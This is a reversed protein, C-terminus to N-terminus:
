LSPQQFRRRAENLDADFFWIREPWGIMVYFLSEPIYGPSSLWSRVKNDMGRERAIDLLITETDEYINSRSLRGVSRKHMFEDIVSIGSNKDHAWDLFSQNGSVIDNIANSMQVFHWLSALNGEPHRGELAEAIYVFFRVMLISNKRVDVPMLTGLVVHAGERLMLDTINVTGKGRPTVQCASLCVIVPLPGIEECFVMRDGCRIGAINGDTYGHASMVLIDYTGERLATKIDDVTDTEVTRCEVNSVTLLIEIGIRWGIRSLQGIPDDRPICEIILIKLRDKLYHTPFGSIEFQMARTLPLLPRYAIPVRCCLPSKGEPASSLGIPFESFCTLSSAHLIALMQNESFSKSVMEGIRRLLRQVAKPNPRSAQMTTELMNLLVFAEDEINDALFGIGQGGLAHHAVLLEMVSREIEDDYPSLKGVRRLRKHLERTSSRPSIGPVAVSVPCRFEQREEVLRQPMLHEAQELTAGEAELKATASLVAQCHIFYKLIEEQSPFGIPVAIDSGGRLQRVVFHMPLISARLNSEDMLKSPQINQPHSVSLANYLASWHRHLSESGISSAMTIEIVNQIQSSLTTAADVLNDPTFIIKPWDHNLMLQVSELYPVPIIVIHHHHSVKQFGKLVKAPVVQFDYRSRPLHLCYWILPIATKLRTDFLLPLTTQGKLYRLVYETATTLPRFEIPLGDTEFLIIYSPHRYDINSYSDVM